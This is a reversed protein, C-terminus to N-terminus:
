IGPSAQPVDTGAQQAVKSLDSQGSAANPVTRQALEQVTTGMEAAHMAKEQASELPQSMEQALQKREENEPPLGRLYRSSEALLHRMEEGKRPAVLFSIGLGILFGNTFSGM